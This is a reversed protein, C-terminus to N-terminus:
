EDLEEMADIDKKNTKVMGALLAVKKMLSFENDVMEQGLEAIKRINRANKSALLLVAAICGYLLVFPLAENM